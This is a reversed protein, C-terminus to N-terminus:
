STYTTQFRFKNEKLGIKNQKKGKQDRTRLLNQKSPLQIYKSRGKVEGKVWHCIEHM